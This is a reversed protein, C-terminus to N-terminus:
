AKKYKKLLFIILWSSSFIIFPLSLNQGTNLWNEAEGPQYEKVFEILFRTSFYLLIFLNAIFFEPLKKNLKNRLFYIIAFIAFSIISEYIQSPHRPIPNQEYLPFKVSWPLNTARGVIESNFFNGMRIFGPLVALSVAVDDILSHWDLKKYKIFGIFALIIGVAMGHSSLGGHNIFFIEIPNSIFFDLEYFVAEGLRAGILGGIILWASLDIALNKSMNHKHFLKRMVLVSVLVGLALFLGYWRISLTGINLIIPNISDIFM